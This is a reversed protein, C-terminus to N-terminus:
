KKWLKEEAKKRLICSGCEGCPSGDEKPYYCSYSINLVEKLKEEGFENSFSQLMKTKTHGKYPSQIYADKYNKGGSKIVEEMHSLWYFSNDGFVMGETLNLGIVIEATTIDDADIMTGLIEMFISNRYPVYSLNEETEKIDGSADKDMLKVPKKYIEAMTKFIPYVDIIESTVNISDSFDRLLLEKMKELSELEKEEANSQYKFYILKVDFYSDIGKTEEIEIREKIRKYLSLSIDMGGSYAVYIPSTISGFNEKEYYAYVELNDYYYTDTVLFTEIAHFTGPEKVAWIGQGNPYCSVFREELDYSFGTFVGKCEEEDYYSLALTDVFFEEDTHNHKEKIKQDNYITGHMWLLEPVKKNLSKYPPMSINEKEMEPTLRSFWIVDLIGNLNEVEEIKDTIKKILDYFDNSEEIIESSDDAIFISYGDGGKLDLTQKVDELLLQDELLNILNTSNKYRSYMIQCM